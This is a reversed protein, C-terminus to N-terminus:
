SGAPMEKASNKSRRIKTVLRRLFRRSLKRVVIIGAAGLTRVDGDSIYYSHGAVHGSIASAQVVLSDRPTGFPPYDLDIITLDPPEQGAILEVNVPLLKEIYAQNVPDDSLYQFRILTPM